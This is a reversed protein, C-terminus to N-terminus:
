GVSDLSRGALVRDCSSCLLTRISGQVPNGVTAHQNVAHQEIRLCHACLGANCSVCSAVAPEVRERTACDYCNM